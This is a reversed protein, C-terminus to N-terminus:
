NIYVNAPYSYTDGTYWRSGFNLTYYQLGESRAERSVKIETPLDNFLHFQELRALVSSAM